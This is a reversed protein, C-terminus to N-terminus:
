LRLDVCLLKRFEFRHFPVGHPGHPAAPHIIAGLRRLWQVSVTNRSDVYNLLAPWRELWASLYRPALRLFYSRARLVGPTGLLWPSGLGPELEAVGFVAVPEGDLLAAHCIASVGASYRLADLPSHGHARVEAVDQPRLHNAVYDLDDPRVPRIEVEL